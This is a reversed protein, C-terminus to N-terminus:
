AQLTLVLNIDKLQTLTGLYLGVIKVNLLDGAQVLINAPPLNDSVNLTTFSSTTKPVTFNISYKAPLAGTSNTININIYCAGDTNNAGAEKSSLSIGKLYGSNTITGLNYTTSDPESSLRGKCTPNSCSATSKVFTQFTPAQTPKLTQPQTTPQQTPKLTQPQTTPQQTPKLTQPQTTPQQTTPPQPPKPTETSNISSQTQTSFSKILLYVVSIIIVALLIGFPIPNSKVFNISNNLFSDSTEVSTKTSPQDNKESSSM